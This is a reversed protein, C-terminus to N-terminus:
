TLQIFSNILQTNAILNEELLAFTCLTSSHAKTSGMAEPLAFSCLPTSHAKENNINILILFNQNIAIRSKMKYNSM